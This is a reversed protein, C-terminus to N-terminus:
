RARTTMSPSFLVPKQDDLAPRLENLIINDTHITPNARFEYAVIDDQDSPNVAAHAKKPPMAVLQGVRQHIRGELTPGHLTVAGLSGAHRVLVYIWTNGHHHPEAVHGPRMRVLGASVPSGPVNGDPGGDLLTAMPQGQQSLAFEHHDTRILTPTANTPFAVAVTTTARFEYALIDHENSPNRLTYTVGPPIAVLQDTSPTIESRAPGHRIIAGLPGAHWVLLYVWTDTHHHPEDVHGPPLHVLDVSIPSGTVNGSPGGNILQTRPSGALPASDPRVLVPSTVM